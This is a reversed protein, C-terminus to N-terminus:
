APPYGAESLAAVFKERPERSGVAVRKTGPDAQVKAEPDVTACVRAISKACGGCSMAPITMEIM